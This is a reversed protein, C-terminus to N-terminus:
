RIARVVEGLWSLLWVGLALLLLYTSLDTNNKTQQDIETATQHVKKTLQEILNKVAVGDEVDTVSVGYRALAESMVSSRTMYLLGSADTTQLAVDSGLLLVYVAIHHQQLWPMVEQLQGRTPAHAGDTVLLLWSTTNNIGSETLQWGAFQLAELIASDERGAFAADLRKVMASVLTMDETLPLVPYVDDAFVVLGTRANKARQQALQDVFDQVQALRTKGSQEKLLLSVSTEVVLNGDAQSLPLVRQSSNTQWVPQALLFILLIAVTLWSFKPLNISSKIHEPVFFRDVFAHKLRITPLFQWDFRSMVFWVFMPVFLWLMHPMLLVLKGNM